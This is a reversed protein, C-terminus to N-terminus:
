PKYDPNRRFGHNARQGEPPIQMYDGYEQRLLADYGSPVPMQVSEFPLEIPEGFCALPMVNPLASVTAGYAVVWDSPSTNWRTSGRLMAQRFWAMPILQALRSLARILRRPDHHGFQKASLALRNIFLFRAMMRQRWSDAQPLYDLPFIDVFLGNNDTVDEILTDLYPKPTLLRVKPHYAWFDGLRRWDQLLYDPGLEEWVAYFREYDARTMMIDIDDDWPIFGQHRIAGILTGYGLYFPIKHRRCVTQIDILIQLTALQLDRIDVTEDM